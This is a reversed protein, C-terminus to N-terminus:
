SNIIEQLSIPYSEDYLRKYENFFLKYTDKVQQHNGAEYHTKIKIRFADEDVIDFKLILDCLKLRLHVDEAKRKLFEKLLGIIENNISLKFADLWEYSIGKLFEGNEIINFLSTFSNDKADDGTKVATCLRLYEEFDCKASNSLKITWHKDSFELDIGDVSSILKRIRNIAVGRSSKGSESSSDPWIVASLEESSVGNQQKNNFSRVIILLVIEKLKPSFDSVIDRGSNDYIHFGGFLQISNKYLITSTIDKEEVSFTRNKQKKKKYYIFSIVFLLITSASIVIYVFLFSKEESSIIPDAPKEVPPYKLTYLEAKSSAKEQKLFIFENTGAFFFSTNGFEGENGLYLSESLQTILPHSLDCKILHLYTKELEQFMRLYYFSSDLTNLYFNNFSSSYYKLEQAKDASWLKTLKKKNLVMLYLDFFNVFGDEQKGSENGSGGFIFFEGKNFGPSMAISSRPSIYGNVKIEEWESSEFNYRFLKNKVTFWGYGGIMYLGGDVPNIFYAAGYYHGKFDTTTDINSWNLLGFDFVSVQGRGRYTSYLKNKFSDYILQHKSGPKPNKYKIWEAKRSTLDYILLSDRQSIFIRSGVSDFAFSTEDKLDFEAIKNWYYHENALWNVNTLSIKSGSIKDTLNNDDLPNLSWFFKEKNNESILINRLYVPPTEYDYVAGIEALGFFIKAKIESPLDAMQGDFLEQNKYLYVSDKTLDFTIKINIWENVTFDDKPLKIELHNKSGEVSLQLIYNHPDRFYVFVLRAFDNQKEKIQLIVGYYSFSWFSLDFSISFNNKLVIDKGDNLAVSTRELAHVNKSNFRIGAFDNSQAFSSVNFAILIITLKLKSPKM